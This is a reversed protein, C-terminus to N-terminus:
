SGGRKRITLLVTHREFQLIGIILLLTVQSLISVGILEVGMMRSRKAKLISKMSEIAANTDQGAYLLNRFRVVWM